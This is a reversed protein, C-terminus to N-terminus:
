RVGRTELVEGLGPKIICWGRLSNDDVAFGYVTGNLAICVHSTHGACKNFQDPSIDKLYQDLPLAAEISKIRNDTDKLHEVGLYNLVARDPSYSSYSKSGLYLLKDTDTLVPLTPQYCPQYYVNFQTHRHKCQEGNVVPNTLVYAQSVSTVHNVPLRILQSRTNLYSQGGLTFLSGTADSDVGRVSQLDPSAAFHNLPAAFIGRRKLLEQIQSMGTNERVHGYAVSRGILPLVDSNVIVTGERNKIAILDQEFFRIRLDHVSDNMTLSELMIQKTGRTLVGDHEAITQGITKIAAKFGAADSWSRTVESSSQARYVLKTGDIRYNGFVTGTPATSTFQAVVNEISNDKSKKM